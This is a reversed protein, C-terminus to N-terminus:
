DDIPEPQIDSLISENAADFLNEWEDSADGGSEVPYSQELVYRMESALAIYLFLECGSAEELEEVVRENLPGAVAVTLIDGFRDLPLCQCRHLLERSITKAVDKEVTYKTPHIFPLQFQTSLTRAIDWETIVGFSVLVEGLPVRTRKQEKLAEVVQESTVLSEDILLEGLKKRRMKDLFKM